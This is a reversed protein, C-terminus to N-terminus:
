RELMRKNAKSAAAGPAGTGCRGNRAKPPFICHSAFLRNAAVFSSGAFVKPGRIRRNRGRPPVIQVATVLAVYIM